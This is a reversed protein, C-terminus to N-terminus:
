FRSHMAINVPTYTGIHSVLSNNENNNNENNNNENNNNNNSGTRTVTITADSAITESEPVDTGNVDYDFIGNAFTIKYTGAPTDKNVSYTATLVEGGAAVSLGEEGVGPTWTAITGGRKMGSLTLYSTQTANNNVVEHQSWTGQIAVYTHAVSTKLKVTASGANTGDLAVSSGTLSYEAASAQTLHYTTGISGALFLAGSLALCTKCPIKKTIKKTQLQM